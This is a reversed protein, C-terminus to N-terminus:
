SKVMKQPTCNSGHCLSLAPSFIDRCNREKAGKPAENHAWKPLGGSMVLCQLLSLGSPTISAGVASLFFRAFRLYIGEVPLCHGM